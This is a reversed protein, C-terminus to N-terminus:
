RGQIRASPGEAAMADGHSRQNSPAQCRRPTNPHIRRKRDRPVAATGVLAALEGAAARRMLDMQFFRDQAHVFGLARAVDARSNGRITVVGLDDRDVTVEAALGDLSEAGDLMPLSGRVLGYATAVIVIIILALAILTAKM